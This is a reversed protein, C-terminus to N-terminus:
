HGQLTKYLREALSRSVGPVKALEDITAARIEQLGGFYQLLKQRRKAGIGMIDELTSTRRQKALKKRHATIAFRHAEDRIQQVLQFAKPTLKQELTLGNSSLYFTELGAKRQPGKAVSLLTVGAVQLEKLVNIAVSLQGKGGDIIM